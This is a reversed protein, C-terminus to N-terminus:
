IINTCPLHELCRSQATVPNKSHNATSPSLQYICFSNVLNNSILLKWVHKKEKKKKRKQLFPFSICPSNIFILCCTIDLFNPFYIFRQVFKKQKIQEEEGMGIAIAYIEIVQSPIMDLIPSFNKYSNLILLSLFSSICNVPFYSQIEGTLTLITVISRSGEQTVLRGWLINCYVSLLM